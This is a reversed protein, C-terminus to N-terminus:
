SFIEHLSSRAERALESDAQSSPNKSTRLARAKETLSQLMKSTNRAWSDARESTERLIGLLALLSATRYEPYVNPYRVPDHTTSPDLTIANELFIAYQRRSNPTLGPVSLERYSIRSIAISRTYIEEYIRDATKAAASAAVQAERAKVFSTLVVSSLLWILLATGLSTQLFAIIRKPLMRISRRETVTLQGEERLLRRVRERLVEEEEIRRKDNDSLM